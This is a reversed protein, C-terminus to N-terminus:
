AMRAYKSAYKFLMTYLYVGNSLAPYLLGVFVCLILRKIFLGPSLEVTNSALNHAEYHSPRLNSEQKRCWRFCLTLKKIVSVRQAKQSPTGRPTGCRAFPLFM